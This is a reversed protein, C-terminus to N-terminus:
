ASQLLLWWELGVCLEYFTVARRRRRRRRRAERNALANTVFTWLSM